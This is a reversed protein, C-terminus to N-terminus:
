GEDGATGTDLLGRANGSDAAVPDPRLDVSGDSDRWVVSEEDPADVGTFCGLGIAVGTLTLAMGQGVVLKLVDATQAGLAIRIGIERTWQAVSYSMVGYIGVAALPLAIIAFVGLLLLNFRRQAVSRASLQNMTFVEYIPLDHDAAQIQQHM